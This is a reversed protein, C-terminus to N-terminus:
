PQRLAGPLVLRACLGRASSPGLLLSGGYLEALDKAISLGLGSGPTATDLRAGRELAVATDDPRLGRGDDEVDVRVQGHDVRADIVIRHNAWKCANDVINGLMEELDQREGHFLLGDAANVAIDLSREAHMRLMGRRLAHLVPGVETRAAPNHSSGAAAARALHHQVLHSMVSLQESVANDTAGDHDRLEAKLISLPTKLAHALNGVHTRAREIMEADHDLVDNVARALPDVEAPYPGPLRRSSGSRIRELDSSMARLPKLTLAAQLFLALALGIGLAGLSVLLLRDFRGVELQIERVDAAVRVHLPSDSSPWRVRRDLSLLSEGRPGVVTHFRIPTDGPKLRGDGGTDPAPLSYDWLSRSRLVPQDARDIQWYWGSYPQEFRSDTLPRVLRTGGDAGVETAAILAMAAADLRQEFGAKVSDHFAYSLALGGASLVAISWVLTGGVLRGTLSRPIM